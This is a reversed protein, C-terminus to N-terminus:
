GGNNSDIRMGDAANRNELYSESTELKWRNNSM